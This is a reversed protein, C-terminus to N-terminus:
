NKLKGPNKVIFDSTAKVGADVVQKAFAPNQKIYESLEAQADQRQAEDYAPYKFIIYLNFIANAIMLAGLIMGFLSFSFLLTGVFILFIARSRASYLFGFNSAIVKTVQKLHTEFCCLLCAFVSVYCALVGTTLSTTTLLSLLSVVIMLASLGLNILRTLLVM